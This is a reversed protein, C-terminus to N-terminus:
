EVCPACVCIFYSIKYSLIFYFYIRAHGAPLTLCKNRDCIVAHPRPHAFVARSPRAGGRASYSAGCCECCPGRTTAARAPSSPHRPVAGSERNGALAGTTASRSAVRSPAPRAPSQPRMTACPRASGATLARPARYAGSGPIPLSPVVWRPGPHQLGPM